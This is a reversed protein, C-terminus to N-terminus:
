SSGPVLNGAIWVSELSRTNAVDATPDAGLVLLDAWKGAELTGVDDLGM